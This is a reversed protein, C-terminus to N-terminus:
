FLRTKFLVLKAEITYLFRKEQVTRDMVKEAIITVFKMKICQVVKVM